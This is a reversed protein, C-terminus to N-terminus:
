GTASASAEVNITVSIVDGRTITGPKFAQIVETTKTMKYGANLPQPSRCRRGQGLRVGLVPAAPSASRWRCARRLCRSASAASRCTSRGPDASRNGASRPAPSGPSRRRRISRWSSARPSRAGPMPRPPIGIGGTAPARRRRDDDQGYREALRTPRADRDADQDFRHRGIGDAVLPQGDKDVLDIRTGEYSWGPACSESATPVCRRATPSALCTRSRRSITPFRRPRCTPRHSASSPGLMAPTAAARAACRRLAAVRQLRVDGYDEHRTGGLRGGIEDGRDDQGKPGRDPLRDAGGEPLQGLSIPPDASRYGPCDGTFYRAFGNGQDSIPPAARGRTDPELAALRRQRDGKSTRQARPMGYPYFAMYDRVGRSAAARAFDTSSVCRRQWRGPCSGHGGPPALRVSSITARRSPDDGGLDRGARCPRSGPRRHRSRDGQRRRDERDGVLQSQRGPGPATLNWVVPVAGGAPIDVTLPKGTAVAPTLKVDATVRMPKNSANRLTFTAGFTDGTRVLPPLGSIIGLDQATRVKVDGTGFQQAGNTAIAVLRFSTLADSLPVKVQAHGNADLDVKGRWLVVPSSIRATSGRFIAAALRRRSRGGEQRLPAQRRGADARDLDAGLAPSDGMMATLVDWSDNPALQMLAEDVAAFALDAQGAPKGDPTKVQVDVTATDRPAYREKDAKVGVSLRHSDWGVKVKAIGVRYSPKALDVTATPKGGDKSFFPVGWDRAMNASWLSWGEVRGRVAMVSVYVDPAYDGPMPVEIVPDKGTLGVVFSLARGRREVTVL